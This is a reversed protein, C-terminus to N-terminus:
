LEFNTFIITEDAAQIGQGGLYSWQCGWPVLPLSRDGLGEVGLISRTTDKPFRPLLGQDDLAGFVDAGGLAAL